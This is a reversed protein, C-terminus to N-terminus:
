WVGVRDGGEAEEESAGSDASNAGGAGGNDKNKTGDDSNCHLM